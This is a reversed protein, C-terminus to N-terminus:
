SKKPHEEKYLKTNWFKNLFKRMSPGIVLMKNANKIYCKYCCKIGKVNNLNNFSKHCIECEKKIRM